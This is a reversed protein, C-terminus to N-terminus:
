IFPSIYLGQFKLTRGVNGSKEHIRTYNKIELRNRADAIRDSWLFGLYRRISGSTGINRYLPALIFAKSNKPEVLMAGKKM